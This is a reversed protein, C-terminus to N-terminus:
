YSSVHSAMIKDFDARGSDIRLMNKEKRLWTIQRKALQRTAATAREVMEQYDMRGDLYDWVQRYGVSRMSPMDRNLRRDRYLADVEEVLGRDLMRLFRDRIRDHLVSRDGPCMAVKVLKFPLALREGTRYHETISRGSIRYVELARQIRQRDHAHIRAAGEPDVAALQRHMEPWGIRVAQAELEERVRQDAAPLSTLGYELARFYLGTGGVLLPTRGRKHVESIARLADHRFRSASYIEHPECIDILHHPVGALTDASPKGTGIDMRRYVMCSDVNIIDMNFRGAWSLAANTKGAATPGTLFVLTATLEGRGRCYVTWYRRM